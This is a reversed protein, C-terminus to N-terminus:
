FPLLLVFANWSVCAIPTQLGRLELTHTYAHAHTCTVIFCLMSLRWDQPACCAVSVTDHIAGTMLCEVIAGGKKKPEPAFADTRSHARRHSSPILASGVLFLSYM